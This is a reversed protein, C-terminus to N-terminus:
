YSEKVIVEFFRPGTPTRVVLQLKLKEVQEMIHITPPENYVDYISDGEVYRRVRSLVAEVVQEKLPDM